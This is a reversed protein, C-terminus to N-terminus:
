LLVGLEPGYVVLFCKKPAGLLPDVKRIRGSAQTRFRLVGLFRRLLKHWLRRGSCFGDLCPYSELNPDRKLDRMLVAGFSEM